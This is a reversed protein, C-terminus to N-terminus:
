NYKIYYKRVKSETNVYKSNYEKAKITKDVKVYKHKVGSSNITIDVYGFSDMYNELIFQYEPCSCKLKPDCICSKFYHNRASHCYFDKSGGGTGCVIQKISFGTNDIIVGSQYMHVDACIYTINKKSEFLINTLESKSDPKIKLNQFEDIKTKLSFLPEHGCIIFHSFSDDQLEEKIFKNQDCKLESITKGLIKSFCHDADDNLNYLNTDVFIYKCGTKGAPKSKFPFMVEFNKNELQKSLNICDDLIFDEIDHNGMILYKVPIDLSQISNFGNQFDDEVFINKKVSVGNIIVKNKDSYYNDGLIVMEDYNKEVSKLYKTVDEYPIRDDLLKPQNWCGFAVLKIETKDTIM